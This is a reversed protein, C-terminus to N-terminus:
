CLLMPSLEVSAFQDLIDDDAFGSGDNNIYLLKM